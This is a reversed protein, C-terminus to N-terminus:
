CSEINASLKPFYFSQASPPFELSRYFTIAAGGGVGMSGSPVSHEYENKPLVLRNAQEPPSMKKVCWYPPQSKAVVGTHINELYGYEFTEPVIEVAGGWGDDLFIKPLCM